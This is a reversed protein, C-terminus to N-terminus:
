SVVLAAIAICNFAKSVQYSNNSLTIAHTFSSLALIFVKAIAKVLLTEQSGNMNRLGISGNIIPM